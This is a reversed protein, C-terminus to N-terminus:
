HSLLKVNIKSDAKTLFMERTDLAKAESLNVVQNCYVHHFGM